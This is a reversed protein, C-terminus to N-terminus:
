CWRRRAAIGGRLRRDRGDGGIRERDAILYQRVSGIGLQDRRDGGQMVLELHHFLFAGRMVHLPHLVLEGAAHGPEKRARGCRLHVRRRDDGDRISDPHHGHSRADQALVPLGFAAIALGAVVHKM